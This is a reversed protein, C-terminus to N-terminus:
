NLFAGTRRQSFTFFEKEKKIKWFKLMKKKEQLNKKKKM